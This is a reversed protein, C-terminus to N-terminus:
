ALDDFTMQEFESEKKSKIEDILQTLDSQFTENNQFVMVSRDSEMEGNENRYPKIDIIINKHCGCNDEIKTGCYPCYKIEENMKLLKRVIKPDFIM